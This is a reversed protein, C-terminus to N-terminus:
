ARQEDLAALAREVSSAVTQVAALTHPYDMRSPGLVGLSGTAGEGAQYAAAVMSCASLELWPMETGIRVAPDGSALANRLLQLAVVQEELAEYIRALQAPDGASGWGAITATGGLFLESNDPEPAIELGVADILPRLAPACGEALGAVVNAAQSMPLDRVAGNVAHSARQVDMDDLREALEVTRKDVRGTHGIVVAMVHREGLRVLEVHRVRTADPPPAAVLAAYRTLRSLVKSSRRLLEEIDPADLLHHEVAAQQQPSASVASAMQDVYFRYGADTPVRGASTHPQVILGADELMGMDARITTPSVGLGAEDAIRKSGVPQGDRVYARVIAELVAARREDVAAM